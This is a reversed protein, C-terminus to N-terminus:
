NSELNTYSRPILTLDVVKPEDNTDGSTEPKTESVNYFVEGVDPPKYPYITHVTSEIHENSRDPEPSDPNTHSRLDLPILTQFHISFM